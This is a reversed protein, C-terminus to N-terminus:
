CIDIEGKVIRRLLEKKDTGYVFDYQCMNHKSEKIVDMIWFLLEIRKLSYFYLNGFKWNGNRVEGRNPHCM